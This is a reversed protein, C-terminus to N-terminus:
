TYISSKNHQIALDKVTPKINCRSSLCKTSKGTLSYIREVKALHKLRSISRRRTDYTARNYEYFAGIRENSSCLSKWGVLVVDSDFAKRGDTESSSNYKYSLAPATTYRVFMLCSVTFKEVVQVMTIWPRLCCISFPPESKASLPGDNPITHTIGTGHDLLWQLVSHVM